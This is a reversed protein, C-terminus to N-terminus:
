KKRSKAYWKNSQIKIYVRTEALWLVTKIKTHDICELENINNDRNLIASHLHLENKREDVKLTLCVWFVMYLSIWNIQSTIKRSFVNPSILSFFFSVFNAFVAFTKGDTKLEISACLNAIGNVKSTKTPYKQLQINEVHLLRVKCIWIGGIKNCRIKTKLLKNQTM